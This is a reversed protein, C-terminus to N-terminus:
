IMRGLLLGLVLGLLLTAALIRRWGFLLIASWDDMMDEAAIAQLRESRDLGARM